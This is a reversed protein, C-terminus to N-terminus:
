SNLSSVWCYRLLSSSDDSGLTVNSPRPQLPVCQNGYSCALNPQETDLQENQSLYFISVQFIFSHSLFSIPIRFFPILLLHPTFSTLFSAFQIFPLIFLFPFVFHFFLFFAHFTSYLSLSCNHASSHCVDFIRPLHFVFLSFHMLFLVPTTIIRCSREQM